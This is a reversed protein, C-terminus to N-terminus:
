GYGFFCPMKEHCLTATSQVSALATRQLMWICLFVYYVFVSFAAYGSNWNIGSLLVHGVFQGHRHSTMTTISYKSAFFCLSSPSLMLVSVGLWWSFYDVDYTLCAATTTGLLWKTWADSYTWLGLVMEYYQERQSLKLTRISCLLVFCPSFIISNQSQKRELNLM